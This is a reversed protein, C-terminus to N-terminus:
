VQVQSLLQNVHPFLWSWDCVDSSRGVQSIHFLQLGSSSERPVTPIFTLGFHVNYETFRHWACDNNTTTLSCFSSTALPTLGLALFLHLQSGLWVLQRSQYCPDSYVQSTCYMISWIASMVLYSISSANSCHQLIFRHVTIINYGMKSTPYLYSSANTSLPVTGMGSKEERSCSTKRDKRLGGGGEGRWEEM